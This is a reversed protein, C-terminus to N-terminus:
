GKRKDYKGESCKNRFYAANRLIEHIEPYDSKFLHQASLEPATSKNDNSFEDSGRKEILMQFLKILDSPPTASKAFRIYREVLELWMTSSYEHFRYAGSLVNARLEDDSLDIDHHKQCLYQICCIALSLTADSMNICSAINPALIYRLFILFENGSRFRVASKSKRRLTSSNCM